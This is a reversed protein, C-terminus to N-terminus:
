PFKGLIGNGGDGIRQEGLGLTPTLAYKAGSSLLRPRLAEQREDIPDM